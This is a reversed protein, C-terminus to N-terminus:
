TGLARRDRRREHHEPRGESTQPDPWSVSRYLSTDSAGNAGSQVSWSGLSSGISPDVSLSM